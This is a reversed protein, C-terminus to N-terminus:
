RKPEATLDAGVLAPWPKTPAPKGAFVATCKRNTAAEALAAGVPALWPKTPAPKGAIGPAYSPCRQIMECHGLSMGVPQAKAPIGFGTPDVDYCRNRIFPTRYKLVEAHRSNRDSRQTLTGGKALRLRQGKNQHGVMQMPHKLQAVTMQIRHDASEFRYAGPADIFETPRGAQSHPLCTKIVASQSLFLIKLCDSPIDHAVWQSCSRRRSQAIVGMPIRNPELSHIATAALAAGVLAPWPKAPAPKGAFVATCKRNTATEALAAGVDGGM